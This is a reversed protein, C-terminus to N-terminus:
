VGWRRTLRGWKQGSPDMSSGLGLRHYLPELFREREMRKKTCDILLHHTSEAVHKGVVRVNVLYREEVLNMKALKSDTGM